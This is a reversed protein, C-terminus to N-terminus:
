GPATVYFVREMSEAGSHIEKIENGLQLNDVWDVVGDVRWIYTGPQLAIDASETFNIEPEENALLNYFWVLNYYEDFLLLRHKVLSSTTNINWNFVITDAITYSTYDYPSILEPKDVLKYGVTDSYATNGSANTTKLYYFWTENIIDDTNSFTDIYYDKTYTNYPIFDIAGLSDLENSQYATYSFRYVELSVTTPDTIHQWPILIWDGEFYADIGNNELEYFTSDSGYYFNLTDTIQGHTNKVIDGTDGIHEQLDVKFATEDSEEPDTSSVCGSLLMVSLIILIVWRM